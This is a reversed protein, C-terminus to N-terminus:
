HRPVGFLRHAVVDAGAPRRGPDKELCGMILAELELPIPLETRTHLPPAPTSAHDILMQMSSEMGGEGLKEELAYQGLENAERV